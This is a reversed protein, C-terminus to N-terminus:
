GAVAFGFRENNGAGKGMGAGVDDIDRRPLGRDLRLGHVPAHELRRERIEDAVFRADRGHRDPVNVFDIVHVANEGGATGIEAAERTRVEDIGVPRQVRRRLLTVIAHSPGLLIPGTAVLQEPIEGTRASEREPRQATMVPADRPMPAAIAARSAAAPASVTSIPRSAFASAPCVRRIGSECLTMQSTVSVTCTSFVKASRSAFAGISMRTLLAPAASLAGSDFVLSAM